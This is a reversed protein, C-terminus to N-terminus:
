AIPYARLAAQFRACQMQLFCHSCRPDTKQCVERGIKYLVNDLRWSNDPAMRDGIEHAMASSARQGNFVRGLVRQVHVDAKFRGQGEIQGTDILAGVIMRSIEPGVGREGLAALRLLVTPPTAGQWIRRADGGYYNVIDRGIRWVRRHAVPFRHLSCERWVPESNWESETWADLIKDWLNEPDSLTEEAFRRANEWATMARVQYDLIAGLMFKNAAKESVWTGRDGLLPWAATRAARETLRELVWREKDTLRM